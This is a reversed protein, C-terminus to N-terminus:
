FSLGRSPKNFVVTDRGYKHYLCQLKASIKQYSCVKKNSDWWSSQFLKSLEMSSEQKKIAFQFTFSKAQM